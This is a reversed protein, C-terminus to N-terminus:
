WLRTALDSGRLNAYRRLMRLDKHGTISSIQVDSLSTREYLRSTAEHRLDHFRLDPCGAEAFRSAFRHSLRCTIARLKRPDITGDWFDPFLSESTSGVKYERLVRLLPSSMPVQRKDGNKTKDLFLTRMVFDVQDWTLTYIERLRMASELAIEFLVLEEYRGKKETLVSRIAREEAPDLRRDREGSWSKEKAVRGRTAYGRPLLRLPNQSLSLLARRLAWDVCRALLGVRKTLTSPSLGEAQMTTVWEEVWSYSLVEVRTEGVRKVLTPLLEVDSQALTTKEYRELLGGLTEVKGGSLEVPVVGRALVAEIRAAFPDGEAESDFTLYVRRELVGKRQFCYEWSGNSRRRKTAM